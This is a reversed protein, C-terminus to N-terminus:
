SLWPATSTTSIEQVHTEVDDIRCTAVKWVSGALLVRYGSSVVVGDSSSRQWREM